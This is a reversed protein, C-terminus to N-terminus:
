FDDFINNFNIGTRDSLEEMSAKAKQKLGYQKAIEEFRRSDQKEGDIYFQPSGFVDASIAPGDLRHYKGHKSWTEIGDGYRNITAPGGERHYKGEYYWEKSDKEPVIRAPLDGERHLLGNKYWRKEGSPFSLAPTDNDPSHLKGNPLRWEITGDSKKTRTPKDAM